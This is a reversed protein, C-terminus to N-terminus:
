LTQQPPALGSHRLLAEIDPDRGRFARFMELPERSGGMELIEHLFQAAAQANFIGQEEFRAFADASLVEAWKYSYYGAAYGGAFIHSFGNQFRNNALVPVVSVEARVEDLVQQVNLPAQAPDHQHIRFDFLSFELQRVMQMAAQFNKAALLKDLMARPLPEGTQYHGSISALSEPHWCWNELFQSPLEVADWPVGNIGSVDGYEMQTLMHHLGHGFEHFLTTVENHTLLAPADALPANFNCTLFAVPLQLNGDARRRRVRCDAMWAGGRKCERAYLDLYFRAIVEGDRSIEYFLVDPHWLSPGEVANIQIGFLRRSIEFLGQLVQNLPFWPRLEDQSIAYRHQRLKESYYGMDWPQLPEVKHQEAAFEQLERIEQQAATRSRQALQQLFDLVQQPSQAMKTALSLEAYNAFGLLQAKEHRLALIQAILPSNDWQGANPGTESARTVYAEHIQQRLAANDCYTIIAFYCPFELTVLYGTEGKAQAAQAMGGLSSEPIGSLQEPDTILRTWGQTADLVQEAFRSALNSLEQSIQAYRKKDAEGLAVGSLRFDRLANAIIKHQAASYDVAEPRQALAEYGNFLALSQGLETSYESLLPLCANYAERLEPSDMVANLHSVPSWAQELRDGLEELPAAFGTWDRSSDDALIAAITARNGKLIEKIAPLVHAAKVTDFPPLTSEQLLPNSMLKQEFYSPPVFNNKITALKTLNGHPNLGGSWGSLVPLSAHPNAGKVVNSGGDAILDVDVGSRQHEAIDGNALVAGHQMNGM